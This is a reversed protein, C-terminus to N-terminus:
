GQVFYSTQRTGDGVAGASRGAVIAALGLAALLALGALGLTSTLGVLALSLCVLLGGTLAAWPAGANPKRFVHLLLRGIWLGALSAGLWILPLSCLLSLGFYVIFLTQSLWGGPLAALLVALVVWLGLAVIGSLLRPTPRLRLATDLRAMRLPAVLHPVAALVGGALVVAVMLVVGAENGAAWLPSASQRPQCPILAAGGARNDIVTGACVIANGGFQSDAGLTVQSAQVTLQGDIVGDITVMEGTLDAHGNIHATPGLTIQSASASLDGAILADLRAYNSVLAANGSVASGETLLISSAFIVLDGDWGGSLTYDDTLGIHDDFRGLEQWIARASQGAVYLVGLTLIIAALAAIFKWHRM